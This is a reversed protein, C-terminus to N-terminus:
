CIDDEHGSKETSWQIKQRRWKGNKEASGQINLLHRRRKGSKGLHRRRKRNKDASWQIKLILHRRWKGNKGHVGTIKVFTTKMKM